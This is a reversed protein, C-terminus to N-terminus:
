VRLTQRVVSEPLLETRYCELALAELVVLAPDKGESIVEQALEDRINLTIEV